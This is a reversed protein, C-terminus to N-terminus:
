ANIRLAIAFEVNSLISIFGFIKTRQMIAERIATHLIGVEAV